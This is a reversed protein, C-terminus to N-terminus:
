MPEFIVPRYVPFCDGARKSEGKRDYNKTEAATVRVCNDKINYESLMMTCLNNMSLNIFILYPNNLYALICNNLPTYIITNSKHKHIGKVYKRLAIRLFYHIALLVLKM